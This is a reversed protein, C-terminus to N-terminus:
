QEPQTRVDRTRDLLKRSGDPRRRPSKDPNKESGDVVEDNRDSNASRNRQAGGVAPNDNFRHQKYRSEINNTSDFRSTTITSSHTVSGETGRLKYHEGEGSDATDTSSPGHNNNSNSSRGKLAQKLSGRLGGANERNSRTSSRQSGQGSGKGSSTGASGPAGRTEVNEQIPKFATRQDEIRDGQVKM